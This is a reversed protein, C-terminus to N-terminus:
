VRAQTAIVRLVDPSANLTALASLRTPLGQPLAGDHAQFRDLYQQIRRARRDRGAAVRRRGTAPPAEAAAGAEWRLLSARRWAQSKGVVNAPDGALACARLPDPGQVHAAIQARAPLAPRAAATRAAYLHWHPCAPALDGALT